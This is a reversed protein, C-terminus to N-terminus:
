KGTDVINDKLWKLFLTDRKTWAEKLIKENNEIIVDLKEWEPKYGKAIENETMATDYVEDEVKCYYFLSHAIYKHGKSFIDERCELVEGIEDISEPVVVLGTEERVERILAEVFSEGAEVGGGPIKYDGASSLQMAYLGNKEIIARVGVREIIPMDDTYNKEDLVFLKKM